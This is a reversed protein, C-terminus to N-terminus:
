SKGTRFCDFSYFSFTWVQVKKRIEFIVKVFAKLSVTRLPTEWSEALAATPDAVAVAVVAAEVMGKEDREAEDKSRSPFSGIL